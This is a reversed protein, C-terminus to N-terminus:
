NVKKSSSRRAKPQNSLLTAQYNEIARQHAVPDHRNSLFDLILPLCYLVHTRGLRLWHIDQLLLGKRRWEKWTHISIGTIEALRHKGVYHANELPRSFNAKV